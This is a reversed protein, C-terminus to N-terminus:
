KKQYEAQKAEADEKRLRDFEEQSPAKAIAEKAASAVEANPDNAFKEYAPKLLFLTTTPSEEVSKNIYKVRESPDLSELFDGYGRSPNLGLISQTYRWDNYSASGAAPAEVKNSGGCGSVTLVLGCVIAFCSPNRV